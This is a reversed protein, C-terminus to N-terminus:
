LSVPGERGAWQLSTGDESGRNCHEKIRKGVDSLINEQKHPLSLFVHGYKHSLTTLSNKALPKLRWSIMPGPALINQM